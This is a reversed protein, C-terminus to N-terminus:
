VRNIKSVNKTRVFMAQTGYRLADLCHPDYHEKDPINTFRGLLDEKWKYNLLDRKINVSEAEVNIKMSKVLDIGQSVSGPGKIAPKIQFIGARRLEEISKLEASDAIIVENQFGLRKIEDAIDQNTMGTKYIHEKVWLEGDVYRIEVLTTFSNVFGFDLGFIRKSYTGPLSEVQVWNKYIVGETIGCEGLCYVHYRWPDTDKLKELDDHISQPIFHNAKHTSYIWKADPNGEFKDHIYFRATPNFSVLINRKTRIYLEWFIEYPIGTVEDCYLIDRKAGKAVEVSPFCAFEMISNTYACKCGNQNVEGIMTHYLDSNFVINRVDRIPGRRLHPYNPSTVTITLNKETCMRYLLMDLINYSKGSSSGGQNVIMKHENMSIYNEYWLAPKDIIIENKM